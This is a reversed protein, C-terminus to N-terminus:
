EGIVYTCGEKGIWVEHVQGADVDLREGPGHTTKEKKDESGPYAITLSGSLILHTTLSSHKHPAYHAGGGDTWTFVHSFGWSRVQSEAEKRSLSPPSTM